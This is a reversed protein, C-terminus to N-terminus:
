YVVKKLGYPPFDDYARRLEEVESFLLNLILTLSDGLKPLYRWYKRMLKTKMRDPTLAM